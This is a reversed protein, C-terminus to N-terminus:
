ADATDSVTGGNLLGVELVRDAGFKNCASERMKELTADPDLMIATKTQGDCDIKLRCITWKKTQSVLDGFLIRELDSDSPLWSTQSSKSTPM